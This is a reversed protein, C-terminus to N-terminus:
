EQTGEKVQVTMSRTIRAISLGSKTKANRIFKAIKPDEDETTISVLGAEHIYDETNEPFCKVDETDTFGLHLHDTNTVDDSNDFDPSYSLDQELELPDKIGTNTCPERWVVSDELLSRIYSAGHTIELFETYFRYLEALISICQFCM